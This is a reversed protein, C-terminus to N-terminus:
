MIMERVCYIDLVLVPYEQFISCSISFCSVEWLSFSGRWHSSEFMTYSRKGLFFVWEAEMNQIAQSRWRLHHRNTNTHRERERESCIMYQILIYGSAMQGRNQAPSKQHHDKGIRFLPKKPPNWTHGPYKSIWQITVIQMEYWWIPTEKFPPVGLRWGLIIMKLLTWGMPKNPFGVM